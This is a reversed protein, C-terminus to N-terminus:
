ILVCDYYILLLLLPLLLLLLLLMDYCLHGHELAKPGEKPPLEALHGHVWDGIAMVFDRAAPCARLLALQVEDRELPQHDLLQQSM